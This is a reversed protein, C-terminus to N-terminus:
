ALAPPPSFLESKLITNNSDKPKVEQTVLGTLGRVGVETDLQM